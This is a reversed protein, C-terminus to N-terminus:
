LLIANMLHTLATMFAFLQRLNVSVCCSWGISVNKKKKKKKVLGSVKMEQNLESKRFYDRQSALNRVRIMNNLQVSM